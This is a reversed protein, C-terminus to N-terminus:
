KRIVGLKAETKAVLEGLVDVIQQELHFVNTLDASATYMDGNVHANRTLLIVLVSFYFVHRAAICGMKEETEAIIIQCSVLLYLNDIKDTM